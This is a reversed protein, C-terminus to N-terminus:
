GTEVKARCGPCKDSDIRCKIYCEKCVIFACGCQFHALDSKMQLCINCQQKNEKNKKNSKSPKLEIVKKVIKGCNFCVKYEEGEGQENKLQKHDECVICECDCKFKGPKKKCFQCVQFGKESKIKYKEYEEEIEEKTLQKRTTSDNENEMNRNYIVMNDINRQLIRNRILEQQEHIRKQKYWCFCIIFIAIILFTIISYIISMYNKKLKCKTGNPEYDELCETCIEQNDVMVCSRCSKDSCTLYCNAGHEYYGEKCKDCVESLFPISCSICNKDTCNMECTHDVLMYLDNCEKCIGSSEDCKRCHNDCEQVDKYQNAKELNYEIEYNKKILEFKRKQYLNINFDLQIPNTIICKEDPTLKYGSLCYQCTNDNICMSCGNICRKCIGDKLYYGQSCMLCEKGPICHLCGEETCLDSNICSPIILIENNICGLCNNESCELYKIGEFENIIKINTKVCNLGGCIQECKGDKLRFGDGCNNNSDPDPFEFCKGKELKYGNKCVECTGEENSLCIDCNPDNCECTHKECINQTENYIYGDYCLQCKDTNLSLICGDVEAKCVNNVNYYGNKCLKCSYENYFGTECLACHLDQCPCTGDILKFNNRCKTCTGYEESTCEECSYEFCSIKAEDCYIYIYKLFLSFLFINFFNKM